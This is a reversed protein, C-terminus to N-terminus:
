DEDEERVVTVNISKTGQAALAKKLQEVFGAVAGADTPNLRGKFLVTRPAVPPVVPATAAPQPTGAPSPAPQPQELLRKILQQAKQNWSQVWDKSLPQENQAAALRGELSALHGRVEVGVAPHNVGATLNARANENLDGLADRIAGAQQVISRVPDAADDPWAALFETLVKNSDTTTQDLPALRTNALAVEKNRHSGETGLDVLRTHLGQLITRKEQASQRLSAAFRDQGQLSRHAPPRPLNFLQNGLDRLRHWDAATVLKGRQLRIRLTPSMGIRVDLPEGDLEQLARHDRQCLFCLFLDVVLPQLGYTDRLHEAIPAWTLSDQDAKQLVDKIYRSDLRLSAKTQGLNVLELPQGLTKLVKEAAEDYAVSVNTEGAEVM